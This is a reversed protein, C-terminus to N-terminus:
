GSRSVILDVRGVSLRDGDHLEATQVRTGNVFTGNTSDLDTLVFQRQDEHIKLHYRSVREDNLQVGNGEERGITMPTKLERFVRGRDAGSIVRLTLKHM